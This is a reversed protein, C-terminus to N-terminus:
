DELVKKIENIQLDILKNAPKDLELWYHANCYHKDGIKNMYPDVLKDGCIYCKSVRKFGLIHRM